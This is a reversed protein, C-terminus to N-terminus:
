LTNTLKKIEKQKNEIDKRLYRLFDFGINNINSLVEYLRQYDPSLSLELEEKPPVTNNNDKIDKIKINLNSYIDYLIDYNKRFAFLFDEEYKNSCCDKHSNFRLISQQITLIHTYQKLCNAHAIEVKNKCLSYFIEIFVAPDSTEILDRIFLDAKEYRSELSDKEVRKLEIKSQNCNQTYSVLAMTFAGIASLFAGWFVLWTAPGNNNDTIVSNSIQWQLIMNLIIPIVIAAICVSLFFIIIQKKIIINM